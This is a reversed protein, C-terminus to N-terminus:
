IKHKIGPTVIKAAVMCINIWRENILGTCLCYCINYYLIKENSMPRKWRSSHRVHIRPDPLGSLDPLKGVRSPDLARGDEAGLHGQSLFCYISNCNGLDCFDSDWKLNPDAGAALLMAIAEKNENRVKAHIFLFLSGRISFIGSVAWHLATSNKISSLHLDLSDSAGRYNVNAGLSILVELM